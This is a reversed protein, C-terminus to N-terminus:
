TSLLDLTTLARAVESHVLGGKLSKKFKRLCQLKKGDRELFM